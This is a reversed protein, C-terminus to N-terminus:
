KPRGIWWLVVPILVILFGLIGVAKQQWALLPALRNELCRHMDKIGAELANMRVHGDELRRLIEAQWLKAEENRLRTSPLM